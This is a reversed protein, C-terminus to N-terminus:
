WDVVFGGSVGKVAPGNAPVHLIHMSSLTSLARHDGVTGRGLGSSAAEARSLPTANSEM